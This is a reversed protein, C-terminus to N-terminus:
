PLQEHAIAVDSERGPGHCTTCSERGEETTMIWAHAM